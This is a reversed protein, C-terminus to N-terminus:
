YTHTITEFLHPYQMCFSFDGLRLTIKYHSCPSLLLLLCTKSWLLKINVAVHGSNFVCKKIHQKPTQTGLSLKSNSFLFSHCIVPQKCYCDTCARPVVIHNSVAQGLTFYFGPVKQASHVFGCHPPQQSSAQWTQKHAFYGWQFLTVTYM